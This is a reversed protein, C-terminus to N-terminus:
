AAPQGSYAGSSVHACGCDYTDCPRTVIFAVYTFSTVALMFLLVTWGSEHAWPIKVDPTPSPMATPKPNTISPRGKVRFGSMVFM